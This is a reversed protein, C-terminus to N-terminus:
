AVKDGIRPFMAVPSRDRWETLEAAPHIRFSFLRGPNRPEVERQRPTLGDALIDRRISAPLDELGPSRPTLLTALWGFLPTTM